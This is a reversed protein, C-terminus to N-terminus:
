RYGRRALYDDLPGAKRRLYGATRAMEGSLHRLQGTAETFVQEFSRYKEDQWTEAVTEHGSVLMSHVRALGEGARTLRDALLRLADPDAIVDPM